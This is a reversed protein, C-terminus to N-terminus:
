DEWAPHRCLGGRVRWRAEASWLCHLDCGRCARYLELRLRWREALGTESPTWVEPALRIHEIQGGRLRYIHHVTSEAVREGELSKVVQHVTVDVRADARTAFEKPTVNGDIERWQRTWYDRVAEPGRV